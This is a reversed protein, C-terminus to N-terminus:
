LIPNGIVALLGARVIEACFEARDLLVILALQRVPSTEDTTTRDLGVRFDWGLSHLYM